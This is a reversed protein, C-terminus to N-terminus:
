RTLRGDARGVGGLARAAVVLALLNPLREDDESEAKNEPRGARM